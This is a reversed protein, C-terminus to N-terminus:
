TQFQLRYLGAYLGNYAILEDHRGQEAVAGGKLVLIRDANRITSLRHAIVISTRGSLVRDMGAQILQETETDISSTAEDLVVVSPNHAIVRAFSILQREGSSINTAGESLITDYGESHRMIFDHAKVTKAANIAAARAEAPPLEIGLTINEAITGSFLFVDQLVPLVSRRLSKLTIEKINIGDLSIKGSDIDWLRTLVNTITTKGAGTYGVIAATEGPEVQFSLNKLVEEGTKYSFSVNKFEIHGRVASIERKGQDPIRQEMDLLAFVREGGAMASQLITYKESIDMVPAYFMAVLNIFAILVGISLTLNLVLVSGIAILAATTFTAIFEVIPRFIAYVRIESLNSDLLEKNLAGYDNMSKRERRFYQVIQLGSLRESFYSNVASSAIRQRRFADRAKVRSLTMCIVVPPMCVLVVLALRPSLLFLTVLAGAMVSIDKLFAVMVNTFFENITEVDGGLRTVIRGVPNRSLFGSSQSITKQFLELRMDKMVRQGILNASWTQIYSAAFVILLSIFLILVVGNIRDLDAGRIARVEDKSLTKLLNSKLAAANEDQIFLPNNLVYQRNNENLKFAYWQEGDLIHEARLEKEIDGSIRLQQNQPVFLIGNIMVPETQFLGSGKSLTKLAAATKESIQKEAATEINFSLYRAVIADDIIRQELVPLLLEGVTSAALALFTIVALHRYPKIYSLIRKFITNDYDKVVEEQEFYDSM